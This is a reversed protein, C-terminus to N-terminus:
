LQYEDSIEEIRKDELTFLTYVLLIIFCALLIGGIIDTFYHQATFLRLISLLISLGSVAGLIIMKVILNMKVYHSLGLFALGFLSISIFVHSSPFSPKLNSGTSTPSYNLVVLNFFFYLGAMLVYGALLFYIYRDVKLLSKRKILQVVGIVAFPIVTAFSAYLLIDSFVRFLPFTNNFVYDNIALNLTSFGLNSIGAVNRVDVTLLLIVWIVFLLLSVGPFLWYLQKKM